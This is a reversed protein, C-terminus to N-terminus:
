ATAPRVVENNREAAKDSMRTLLSPAAPSTSDRGARPRDGEPGTAQPLFRNALAAAEVFASPMLGYLAVAIRAPVTLILEARGHRCADIIQRAARTSDMSLFPLSDGIAFWAFEREHQGKMTANMPSGTRMLGPCVTTIVIGDRSLETALSSSLGTLAFKSAVYPALHPVPIKGGISAINVIRGGGQLRMEPVAALMTHLPGRFHVSMALEYDELTMHAAPGVQIVGANNVLVDLRGHRRVVEGIAREAEGRDSVDCRITLVRGGLEELQAAARALESEDRAAIAVAAGEEVLLRAMELGLGRSGGTILVSRNEFSYRDRGRWVAAMSAAVGTAILAAACQQNTV